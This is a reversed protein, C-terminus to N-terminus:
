PLRVYGRFNHEHKQLFASRGEMVATGRQWCAHIVTPEGVDDWVGTMLGVHSIEVGRLLSRSSTRSTPLNAFILDGAESQEHPDVLSGAEFLDLLMRDSPEPCWLGAQSRAWTILLYCNVFKPPDCDEQRYRYQSYGVQKWAEQVARYAADGKLAQALM